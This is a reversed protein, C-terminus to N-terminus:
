LIDLIDYILIYIYIYTLLNRKNFCVMEWKLLNCQEDPSLFVQVEFEPIFLEDTAYLQLGFVSVFM